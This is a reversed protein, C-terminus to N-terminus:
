HHPDGALRGTTEEAIVPRIWDELEELTKARPFRDERWPQQQLTAFAFAECTRRPHMYLYNHEFDQSAGGHIDKIFDAWSQEVQEPDRIDYISLQALSRTRNKQWANLLLERAEVDTAPASYGLVTIYYAIQLNETAVKWQDAVFLDSNYDKKEVPYLLATPEVPGQPTEGDSIFRCFKQEKNIGIDVNGHLFTLQPLIPGLHRWRKFAQPLLPDWNFTVINDKPRLSLVLYDYLTPENPLELKSFYARIVSDLQAIAEENKERHLRSFISEFNDSPQQGFKRLMEEIGLVKAFDNMVPLKHGNKDGMPCCARSAGAGLIVVHPSENFGTTIDLRPLLKPETTNM